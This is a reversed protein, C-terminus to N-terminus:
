AAKPHLIVKTWGEDRDDFHKYAEPADDLSLQHFIIMSPNVRWKRADIDLEGVVM